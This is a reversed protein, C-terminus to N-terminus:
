IGLLSNSSGCVDNEHGPDGKKVKAEEQHPFGPSEGMIGLLLLNKDWMPSQLASSEGPQNPLSEM